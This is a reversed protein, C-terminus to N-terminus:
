LKIFYKTIVIKQKDFLSIYYVGAQINLINITTFDTTQYNNEFIKVSFNNYIIIKDFNTNSLISLENTAPNPFLSVELNTEDITIENINQNDFEDTETNQSVVLPSVFNSIKVNLPCYFIEDQLTVFIIGSTTFRVNLTPTGQGSVIEWSKPVTWVISNPEYDDVKISYTVYKYLKPNVITPGNIIRGVNINLTQALSSGCKNFAKVTIQGSNTGVTTTITNNTGIKSTWGRPITWLYGTTNLVPLVSYIENSGICPTSNGVIATPNVPVNNTQVKLPTSNVTQNPSIIKVSVNGSTKGTQVTIKNTGQGNIITWNTPITWLYSFTPNADISYTVTKNECVITDGDIYSTINSRCAGMDNRTQDSDNYTLDPNGKNICKSTPKLFYNGTKTEVFQPDTNINNTELIAYGCKKNYNSYSISAKQCYTAIDCTTNNRIISNRIDAFSGDIYLGINSDVSTINELYISDNLIYCNQPQNGSLIINKYFSENNSYIGGGDISAINNSIQLNNNIILQSTTYIGAGDRAINNKIIVDNFSCQSHIIYLAGGFGASNESFEVNSFKVNSDTLRIGGGEYNIANNGNNKIVSNSLEFNSYIAFIGAGEDQMKPNSIVAYINSSEFDFKSNYIQNQLYELIKSSSSGFSNKCIILNDLKPSSSGIAIGRGKANVGNSNTNQITFGSLQTTLDEGSLFSITTGIGSGDIITSAAGNLSKVTLNRCGLFNINERYTGAQVWITANQLNNTKVYNIASQITAFNASPVTLDISNLHNVTIYDNKTYTDSNMKDSVTLTVDYIGEIQYSVPPPTKGNYVAPTGGKFTWFWSTAGETSLDEFTATQNDLITTSHAYFDAQLCTEGNKPASPCIVNVFEETTFTDVTGYNITLKIKYKGSKGFSYDFQNTTFTTDKAFTGDTKQKAIKWKWVTPTGSSIDKFMYSVTDILQMTAFNTSDKITFQPVLKKIFFYHLTDTGISSIPTFTSDSNRTPMAPINLLLSNGALDQSTIKLTHKGLITKAAVTFHWITDDSNTVSINNISSFALTPIDLKCWKVPESTTIEIFINEPQLISDTTLQNLNYTAGTLKWFSNDVTEGSEDNRKITVNKIFPLYNDVTVSDMFDTKNVLDEALIHVAYLGDKFKTNQNCSAIAADSGNPQAGSSILANTKWCQNSDLDSISGITGKCNTVIYNKYYSSRTGILKSYFPIKITVDIFKHKALIGSNPATLTYTSTIKDTPNNFWSNDFKCVIYPNINDRVNSGNGKLNEIYYGAKYIGSLKNTTGTNSMLDSISVSIDTNAFIINQNLFAQYSNNKKYIIPAIKPITLFPDTPNLVSDNYLINNFIPLPNQLNEGNPYSIGEYFSATDMNIINSLHLHHITPHYYLSDVKGINQGAYLAKQGSIIITDALHMYIDYEYKGGMDIELVAYTQADAQKDYAILKGGRIVTIDKGDCLFDVGEHYRWTNSPTIDGLVSCINFSNDAIPWQIALINKSENSTDKATTGTYLIARYKYLKKYIVTNDVYQTTSIPIGTVLDIYGAGDNRQIKISNGVTTTKLKWKVTITNNIGDYRPFTYFEKKEFQAKLNATFFVAIIFIVIKILKSNM